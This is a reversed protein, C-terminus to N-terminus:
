DAPCVPPWPSSAVSDFKAPVCPCYPCFDSSKCVCAAITESGAAGDLSLISRVRTHAIAGSGDNLGIRSLLARHQQAYAHADAHNGVASSTGGFSLGSNTLAAEIGSANAAATEFATHLWPVAWSTYPYISSAVEMCGTAETVITPGRTAKM